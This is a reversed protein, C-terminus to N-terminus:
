SLVVPLARTKLTLMPPSLEPGLSTATVQETTSTVPSLSSGAPAKTSKACRSIITCEFVNHLGDPRRNQDSSRFPLSKIGFTGRGIAFQQSRGKIKASLLGVLLASHVGESAKRYESPHSIHPVGRQPPRHAPRTTNLAQSWSGSRPLPNPRSRPHNSRNMLFRTVAVYWPNSVVRESNFQSRGSFGPYRTGRL